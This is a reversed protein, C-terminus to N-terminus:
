GRSYRGARSRESLCMELDETVAWVADLDGRVLLDRQRATLACIARDLEDVAMTSVIEGVSAPNCTMSIGRPGIDSSACTSCSFHWM